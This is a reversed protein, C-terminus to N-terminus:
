PYLSSEDFSFSQTYGCQRVDAFVQRLCFPDSLNLCAVSRSDLTFEDLVCAAPLRRRRACPAAMRKCSRLLAMSKASMLLQKLLSFSASTSRCRLVEAAGVAVGVFLLLLLLMVACVM